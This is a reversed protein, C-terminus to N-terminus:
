KVSENRIKKAIACSMYNEKKIKSFVKSIRLVRFSYKLCAKTGEIVYGNSWYKRGLVYALEYMADNDSKIEKFELKIIGIIGIFKLDFKRIVAM